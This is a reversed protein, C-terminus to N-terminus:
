DRSAWPIIGTRGLPAPMMKKIGGSFFEFPIILPKDKMELFDDETIGFTDKFKQDTTIESIFGNMEDVHFEWASYTGAVFRLIGTYCVWDPYRPEYNYWVGTWIENEGATLDGEWHTGVDWNGLTDAARFIALLSDVIVNLRPMSFSTDIEQYEYDDWSDWRHERHYRYYGDAPVNVTVVIGDIQQHQWDGYDYVTDRGVAVSYTPLLSKFDQIPDDFLVSFNFTLPEPGLPGDGDWDETLTLGTELSDRFEANDETILDLDAVNEPAIIIDDSQDDTEAKLFAIANDLAESADLLSQKAAAMQTAGNPTRLSLFGGGPTLFDVIAASDYASPSINYAVAVSFFSRILNVAAELVYLETLDFEVSDEQVDGQMKPTIIFSYTSSDDVVNFRELAYDLDPLFVSEIVDQIDGITPPDSVVLKFLNLYSYAVEKENLTRIPAQRFAGPLLFGLSLAPSSLSTDAVFASGTDLFAEWADFVAQVEADQSFLLIETLGAGFNADLNEADLGLAEKFLANSTSFDIDGPQSVELTSLAFLEDELATIASDVMAEVMLSDTGNGNDGNAPTEECALMFLFVATFSIFYNISRLM